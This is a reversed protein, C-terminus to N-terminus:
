LKFYPRPDKHMASIESKTLLFPPFYVQPSHGRRKRGFCFSILGKLGFDALLIVSVAVFRLPEPIPVCLSDAFSCVKKSRVLSMFITM